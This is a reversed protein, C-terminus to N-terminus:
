GESHWDALLIRLQARARHLRSKITGEPVSLAIAVEALSYGEIDFLVLVERHDPGLRQLALAIHQRLQAQDMEEEPTRGPSVVDAVAERLDDPLQSIPKPDRQRQRWRDVHENRLIRALWPRLSEIGALQDRRQYLKVLVAQLLEESEEANHTLLFALRYLAPVHSELQQAFDDRHRMRRWAQLFIVKSNVSDPLDNQAAARTENEDPIM